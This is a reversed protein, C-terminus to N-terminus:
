IRVEGGREMFVVLAVRRNGARGQPTLNDAKPQTDALGVARLREAPVGREILARAVTSARASSLEWNSRYRGGAIPQNDTHGEVAITGPHDRLWHALRDLVAGGEAKLDASAPDFLISDGIELRVQGPTASVEIDGGLLADAGPDPRAQSPAADPVSLWRPQEPAPTEAGTPDPAAASPPPFAEDDVAPPPVTAHAIPRAAPTPPQVPLVPAAVVPPSATGAVAKGPLAKQYAFLMVFFTFLLTMLDSYSLLWNGATDQATESQATQWPDPPPVPSTKAAPGPRSYSPSIM